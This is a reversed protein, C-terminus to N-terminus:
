GEKELAGKGMLVSYCPATTSIREWSIPCAKESGGETITLPTETFVCLELINNEATLIKRADSHCDLKSNIQDPCFVVTSANQECSWRRLWTMLYFLFFQKM